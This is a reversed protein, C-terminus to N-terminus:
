SRKPSARTATATMAGGAWNLQTGTGPGENAWEPSITSLHNTFAYTTGSGDRRVVTQILKPPLKLDPNAALIRPDDWRWIKGLFIDVYVDRPLRLEGDVGPLNYALVVMGATAPILHVGRPVKAIQEDSMASCQRRLRGGRRHLAYRGRRVPENGAPGARRNGVPHLRALPHHLRRLRAETLCYEVLDRAVKAKAADQKEPFLLWTFTTIPYAKEGAPDFIWARLDPVESGPLNGTPFEASALAASGAEAGAAVFFGDKNELLASPTNTLKAFGYEVYGIADPTQKVTATVGDNKPSKVLKPSSPWQPSTGQGVASKFRPRPSPPSPCAVPHRDSKLITVVRM